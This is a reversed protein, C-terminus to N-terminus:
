FPAATQLWSMVRLICTALDRTDVLLDGTAGETTTCSDLIFELELQTLTTNLLDHLIRPVDEVRCTEADDQQQYRRILHRLQIALHLCLKGNDGQINALTKNRSPAPKSAQGWKRLIKNRISDQISKVIDWQPSPSEAVGHRRSCVLIIWVFYTSWYLISANFFSVLSNQGFRWTLGSVAHNQRGGHLTGGDIFVTSRAEGAKLAEKAGTILVPDLWQSQRNCWAQYWPTLYWWRIAQGQSLGHPLLHM